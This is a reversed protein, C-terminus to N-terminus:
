LRQLARLHKAASVCRTSCYLKSRAEKPPLFENRCHPCTKIWKLERELTTLRGDVNSALRLRLRHATDFIGTLETRIDM